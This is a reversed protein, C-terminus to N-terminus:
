GGAPIRLADLDTGNLRDLDVCGEIGEVSGCNGYQWITWGHGGWNAAPVRPAAVHWHAIWLAYGNDAFWRSNGMKDRWFTPSTYIIPKVGVRSEVEALWAKAWRRLKRAGLGGNTELDLVPRLNGPGLKATDVFNDAELVADNATTDPNAFHYATFAIGNAEARDKNRAYQEDQYVRGETAKAIAFRVGDAAVDSWTIQGQWHSVDIGALDEAADVPPAASLAGGLVVCALMAVMVPAALRRPTARLTEGTRM